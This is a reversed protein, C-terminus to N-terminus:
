GDFVNTPHQTGPEPSGATVSAPVRSGATQVRATWHSLRWGQPDKGSPPPLSLTPSVHRLLLAPRHPAVLSAPPPPSPSFVSEDSRGPAWGQWDRPKLGTLGM